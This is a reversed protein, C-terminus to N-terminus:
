DTAVSELTQGDKTWDAMVTPNTVIASVLGTQCAALVQNLTGAIWITM